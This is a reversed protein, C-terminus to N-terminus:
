KEVEKNLMMNYIEDAFTTLMDEVLLDDTRVDTAEDLFKNRYAQELMVSKVMKKIEKLPLKKDIM